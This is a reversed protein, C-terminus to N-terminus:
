QDSLNVENGKLMMKRLEIYARSVRKRLAVESIGEKLAVDKYARGELQTHVIARRLKEPLENLAEQIEIEPDVLEINAIETTNTVYETLEQSYQENRKALIRYYDAIKYRLIASIWPGIPREKQYSALNRHIAMMCEQALDEYDGSRHV